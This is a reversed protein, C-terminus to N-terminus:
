NILNLLEEETVEELLYNEINEQKLLTNEEYLIDIDEEELFSILDQNNLSIGGTEIYNVIDNESFTSPNKISFISFLALILIAAVASAYIITPYLRITKVLPKKNVTTKFIQDEVNNFYNEPIKFGTDKNFETANIKQFLVEDFASFYNKPTKFGHTYKEQKKNM